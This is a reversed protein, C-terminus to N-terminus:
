PPRVLGNRLPEDDGLTGDLLVHRADESLELQGRGRFVVAANEGHEDEEARLRRRAYSGAAPGGPRARRTESRGCTWDAAPRHTRSPDPRREADGYFFRWQRPM